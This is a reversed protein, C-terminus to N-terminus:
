LENELIRHEIELGQESAAAELKQTDRIIIYGADQVFLDPEYWADVFDIGKETNGVVGTVMLEGSRTLTLDSM